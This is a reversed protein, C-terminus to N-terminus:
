GYRYRTRQREPEVESCEGLDVNTVRDEIYVVDGARLEERGAVDEGSRDARSEVASQEQDVRVDRWIGRGGHTTGHPVRQQNM